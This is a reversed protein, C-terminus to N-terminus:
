YLLPDDDYVAKLSSFYTALQAFYRSQDKNEHMLNIMQSVCQEDGIEILLKGSHRIAHLSQKNISFQLSQTHQIINLLHKQCFSKEHIMMNEFLRYDKLTKQLDHIFADMGQHRRIKSKQLDNLTSALNQCVDYLENDNMRAIHKRKIKLSDLPVDERWKSSLSNRYIRKFDNIKKQVQSRFEHNTRM